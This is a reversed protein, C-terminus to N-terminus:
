TMEAMPPKFPTSSDSPAAAAAPQNTLTPKPQITHAEEDLGGTMGMTDTMNMNTQSDAQNLAVKIRSQSTHDQSPSSM